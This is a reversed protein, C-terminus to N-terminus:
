TLPPISLPAQATACRQWDNLLERRYRSAWELVMSRARAPADGRILRVPQLGIVMEQGEYFARVHASHRPEYLMGIVIGYFKSLVPMAIKEPKSKSIVITASHLPSETGLDITIGPENASQKM